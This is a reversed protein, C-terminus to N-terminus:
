IGTAVRNRLSNEPLSRSIINKRARSEAALRAPLGDRAEIADLLRRKSYLFVAGAFL